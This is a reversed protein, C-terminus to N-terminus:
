PLQGAVSSPTHKVHPIPVRKRKRRIKVLRKRILDFGVGEAHQFIDHIYDNNDFTEITYDYNDTMATETLVDDRHFICITHIITLYRLLHVKYEEDEFEKAWGSQVQNLVERFEPTRMQNDIDLVLRASDVKTQRSLQRRNTYLIVGAIIAPGVGALLYDLPEMLTLGLIPSLDTPMIVYLM